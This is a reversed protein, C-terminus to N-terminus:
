KPWDRASFFGWIGICMFGIIGLYFHTHHREWFGGKHNHTSTNNSAEVPAKRVSAKGVIFQYSGEVPHGDSSVVRWSVTFTGSANRDKIGVSLLPGATVSAGNDVQVGDSSKVKLVNTEAGALVILNGDFEVEVRDPLTLVQSNIAPTTAVLVAHAQASPMPLAFFLVALMSVGYRLRM